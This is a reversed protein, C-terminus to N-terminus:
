LRVIYAPGRRSRRSRKAKCKKPKKTPVIAPGTANGTASPASANGSVAPVSATYSLVSGFSAPVTLLHASTPASAVGSAGPAAASDSASQTAAPPPAVLENLSASPASPAASGSASESPLTSNSPASASPAPQPTSPQGPSGSYGPTNEDLLKKDGIYQGDWASDDVMGNIQNRPTPKDDFPLWGDEYPRDPLMLHSTDRGQTGWPGFKARKFYETDHIKNYLGPRKERLIFPFFPGSGSKWANPAVWGPSPPADCHERTVPGDAPWIPNCGPLKDIVEYLGVDENPIKGQYACQTDKHYQNANEDYSPKFAPCNGVNQEVQNNYACNIVADALVAEDWGSVFDAHFSGGQMDGNSIVVNDRGKRWPTAEPFGYFNVFRLIPYAIPHSEPCGNGGGPSTANGHGLDIPWAMHSFHDHSDLSKNAWGCSPFTVIIEVENKDGCTEHKWQANPLMGEGTAGHCGLNLGWTRPDTRDRSHATGSVMRLGKPFPQTNPNNVSYYMRTASSMASYTGNDHIYYLTPSWYNSKDAGVNTGTCVARQQEEPTNLVERFNSAGIITHVHDGVRDPNIIPDVRAILNSFGGVIFLGNAQAATAASLAAAAYTSLKM